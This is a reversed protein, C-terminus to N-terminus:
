RPAPVCFPLRDKSVSPSKAREYVSIQEVMWMYPPRAATLATLIKGTERRNYAFGKEALRAVWYRKPRENVHHHGGQNPQAASLILRDSFRLLNDLFAGALAEPIHEAVELCLALDFEGWVNEFPVTLDRAQFVVPYSHEAPPVVGDISVVDVGNKAFRHGYVGCGAGLDVLRKPRFLGHLIDAIIEASQVYREHGSGWEEFFARDYIRDLDTMM